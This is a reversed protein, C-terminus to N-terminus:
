FIKMWFLIGEEEYCRPLIEMNVMRLVDLLLKIGRLVSFVTGFRMDMRMLNVELEDGGDNGDAVITNTCFCKMKTNSREKENMALTWETMNQRHAKNMSAHWVSTRGFTLVNEPDIMKMAAVEDHGAHVSENVDRLVKEERLLLVDRNMGMRKNEVGEFYMVYM